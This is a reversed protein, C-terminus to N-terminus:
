NNNTLLKGRQEGSPGQRIAFVIFGGSALAV